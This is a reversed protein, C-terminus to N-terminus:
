NTAEQMHGAQPHFRCGKPTTQRELWSLLGALALAIIRQILVIRNFNNLM